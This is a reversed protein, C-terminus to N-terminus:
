LIVEFDNRSLTILTNISVVIGNDTIVLSYTGESVQGFFTWGSSNSIATYNVSTNNVDTITATLGMVPQENADKILIETLIDDDNSINLYSMSTKSVAKVVVSNANVDITEINEKTCSTNLISLLCLFAMLNNLVKKM